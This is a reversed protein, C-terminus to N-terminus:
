FTFLVLASWSPRDKGHIELIKDMNSMDVCIAGVSPQERESNPSLLVTQDSVARYQGELSTAGSYAVVPMRYKRSINVIKVVDETSNPYVVM